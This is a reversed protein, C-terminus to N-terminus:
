ILLSVMDGRGCIRSKVGCGLLVHVRRCMVCLTVIRNMSAGGVIM